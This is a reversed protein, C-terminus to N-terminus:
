RANKSFLRCISTFPCRGCEPNQAHCIGRGFAIFRHHLGIWSDRPFKRKLKEMVKGPDDNEFALNLRKAVRNVHTDVPFAPINFREAVVVSATKIGVGPLSTLEGITMPVKGSFRNVLAEGLAVLNEAKGRWLGLCRIYEGVEEVKAKSLSVPDPYAKFLAPTVANVKKDTTQASLSVAVLCQFSDAFDLTCRADPYLRGLEGAIFSPDTMM